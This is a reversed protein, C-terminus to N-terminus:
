KLLPLDKGASLIVDKDPKEAAQEAGGPPMGRVGPGEGVPLPPVAFRHTLAAVLPPTLVGSM